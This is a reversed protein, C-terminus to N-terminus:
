CCFHQLEKGSVWDLDPGSGFNKFRNITLIWDLDFFNKSTRIWNLDLGISM